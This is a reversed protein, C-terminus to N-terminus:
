SHTKRQRCTSTRPCHLLNTSIRRPYNAKLNFHKSDYLWYLNGKFFHVREGDNLTIAGNLNNPLGKFDSINRPMDFRAQGCDDNIRIYKSGAFLYTANTANLVFAANIKNVSADFGFDTIPLPSSGIVGNSDQIWYSRGAPSDNCKPFTYMKSYETSDYSKTLFVLRYMGSFLVISRDSDREYAADIHQISHSLNTFQDHIRAPYDKQLEFNQNLRWVYERRFIFISGSLLAIADM